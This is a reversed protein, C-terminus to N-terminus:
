RPERSTSDHDPAFVLEEEMDHDRGLLTCGVVTVTCALAAYVAVPLWSGQWNLLATFALPAVAGGFTSGIAYALSSGTARLRPSFQETIFAGQPGYVLSHLLLGVVIGAVLFSFSGNLAGPLFVFPWIAAVATAIAYMHRRNVRDSLAAALPVAVLQGASGILVATLVESSSFGAKKTGYLLSFVIFLASIVDPGIRACSAAILGRLETAFVERVPASPSEGKDRIARFVPTDELRLRILLGVAVLLASLLFAVRWGWTVFATESMSVTLLALVGNALLTGAAPGMQPASCWFGRREPDGFESSLLPAVGLEGGVGVGQAFRLTVLLIPAVVGISDFTPLLGIAFTAVGILLLTSVIVQKRGIVDGLRGLAFAGLPRALYGVAYTSFALLVGSASSSSRFFLVPFVLAASASYIGFDYWELATGSLSAAFAKALPGRQTHSAPTTPATAITPSRPSEDNPM